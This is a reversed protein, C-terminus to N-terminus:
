AAGQADQEARIEAVLDAWVVGRYLRPLGAVAAALDLIAEDDHGLLCEAIVPESM